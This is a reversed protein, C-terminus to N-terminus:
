GRHSTVNAPTAPDRGDMLNFVIPRGIRARTNGSSGGNCHIDPPRGRDIQLDRECAPRGGGQATLWNNGRLGPPAMSAAVAEDGRSEVGGSHDAALAPATQRCSAQYPQQRKISGSILGDPGMFRVANGSRGSTM